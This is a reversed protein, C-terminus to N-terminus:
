IPKAQPSGRSPRVIRNQSPVEAPQTRRSRCQWGVPQWRTPFRDQTAKQDSQRGPISPSPKSRRSSLFLTFRGGSRLEPLSAARRLNFVAATSSRGQNVSPGLAKLSREVQLAGHTANPDLRHPAFRSETLVPRSGRRFPAAEAAALAATTAQSIARHGM